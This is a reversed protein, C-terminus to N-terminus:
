ALSLDVDMHVARNRPSSASKSDGFFQSLGTSHSCGRSHGALRLKRVSSSFVAQQKGEKILQLKAILAELLTKFVALDQGIISVLPTKILRVIRNCVYVSAQQKAEESDALYVSLRQSVKQLDARNQFIGTYLADHIAKGLGAATQHPLNLKDFPKLFRNLTILYRFVGSTSQGCNQLVRDCTKTNILAKGLAFFVQGRGSCTSCLSNARMKAVDDWCKQDNQFEEATTHKPLEKAVEDLHGAVEQFLSNAVASNLSTGSSKIDQVLNQLQGVKSNIELMLSHTEKVAAQIKAGDEKAYQVLSDIECCTGHLNWEEGCKQFDPKKLPQDLIKVNHQALVQIFPNKNICASSESTHICTSIILVTLITLISKLM